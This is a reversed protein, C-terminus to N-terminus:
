EMLTTRSLKERRMRAHRNFSVKSVTVVASSRLSAAFPSGSPVTGEATISEPTSFTFPMTFSSTESPVMWAGMTGEANLNLDVPLGEVEVTKLGYRATAIGSLTKRESFTLENNLANPQLLVGIGASELELSYAGLVEAGQTVELSAILADNIAAGEPM